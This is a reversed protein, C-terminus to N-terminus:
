LDGRGNALNVLQQRLHPCEFPMRHRVRFKRHTWLTSESRRSIYERFQAHCPCTSMHEEWM